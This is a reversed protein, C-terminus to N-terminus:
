TRKKRKSAPIKGIRPDNKRVLACAKLVEDEFDESSAPLIQWGTVGDGLVRISRMSPLVKKLSAHHEKTTALWVGNDQKATPKERLAFVIREGVYVATCGFLPKTEPDLSELEDLVFDFPLRARVKPMLEPNARKAM